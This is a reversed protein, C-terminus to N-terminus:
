TKKNINTNANEDYMYNKTKINTIDHVIQHNVFGQSGKVKEM